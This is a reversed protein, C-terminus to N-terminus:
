PGLGAEIAEIVDAELEQLLAQAPSGQGTFTPRPFLVTTRGEREYLSIHLPCVALMAPDANAVANTYWVNCFVMSRVATLQNRNYDEGWRDAFRAMQAGMDPEFVVFFRNEDLTESLKGYVQDMPRDVTTEYVGPLEARAPMAVLALLAILIPV